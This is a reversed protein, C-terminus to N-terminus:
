GRHSNLPRGHGCLYMLWAQQLAAAAADDAGTGGVMLESLSPVREWRVWVRRPPIQIWIGGCLAYRQQAERPHLAPRLSHIPKTAM